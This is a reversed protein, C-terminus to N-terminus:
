NNDGYTKRPNTKGKALGRLAMQEVIPESGPHEREYAAKLEQKDLLPTLTVKVKQISDRNVNGGVQVVYIKIGANGEWHITVQLELEVQDVSFLPVTDGGQNLLELRIQKILEDLGIRKEEPM